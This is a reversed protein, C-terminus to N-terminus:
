KREQPFEPIQEESAAICKFGHRRLLSKLIARLGHIDNRGDISRLRITFVPKSKPQIDTV